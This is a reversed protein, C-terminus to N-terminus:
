VNFFREFKLLTEDIIDITKITSIMRKVIGMPPNVVNWMMNIMRPRVVLSCTVPFNLDFILGTRRSREWGRKECIRNLKIISSEVIAWSYKCWWFRGPEDILDRQKDGCSSWEFTYITLELSVSKSFSIWFRHFQFFLLFMSNWHFINLDLLITERERLYLHFEKWKEKLGFVYCHSRYLDLSSM